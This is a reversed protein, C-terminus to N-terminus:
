GHGEHHIRWGGNTCDAFHPATKYRRTALSARMLSTTAGTDIVMKVPESKYYAFLYPSQVIDVAAIDHQDLMGYPIPEEHGSSEHRIDVDEEDPGENIARFRATPRSRKDSEPILSCEWLNHNNYRRGKEKCLVCFKNQKHQFQHKYTTASRFAKSEQLTNLEELLSDLALSIEPKLSSLTKHRLESGYRQKVLKPLAPNIM